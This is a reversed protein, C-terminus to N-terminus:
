IVFALLVEGQAVYNPTGLLVASVSESKHYGFVKRIFLTGAFM